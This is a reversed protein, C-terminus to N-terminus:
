KVQRIDIISQTMAMLSKNLRQACQRIALNHDTAEIVEMFQCNEMSSQKTKGNVVREQSNDSWIVMYKM